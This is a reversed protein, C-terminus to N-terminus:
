SPTARRREAAELYLMAHVLCGAMAMPLETEVALPSPGAAVVALGVGSATGTPGTPGPPGPPPKPSPATASSSAGARGGGVASDLSGEPRRNM